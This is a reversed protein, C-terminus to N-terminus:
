GAKAKHLLFLLGGPLRLVLLWLRYLLMIAAGSAVGHQSFLLASATESVGVGDPAIPLAGAVFVLPVVQGAGGLSLGSGVARAAAVFAGLTIAASLISLGFAGLLIVGHRRYAAACREVSGRLSGPLLGLAWRRTPGMWAAAAATALAGWLLATALWAPALGPDWGDRLWSGILSAAGMCLLALLGMLRDLVVTSVAEFRRDSVDGAVLYARSLVGGAMGPIALSIFFGVWSLWAARRFSLGIGQAKLLMWWRWTQGALCAGVLALGALHFGGSSAATLAGPDLRGSRVLWALLAAAFVFKLCVILAKM